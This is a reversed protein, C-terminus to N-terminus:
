MGHLLLGHEQLPDAKMLVRLRFYACLFTKPHVTQVFCVSCNSEGWMGVAPLPWLRDSSSIGGIVRM